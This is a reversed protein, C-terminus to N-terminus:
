RVSDAGQTATPALAATDAVPAPISTPIPTKARPTEVQPATQERLMSRFEDRRITALVIVIIVAVAVVLGILKKIM